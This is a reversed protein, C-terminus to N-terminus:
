FTDAQAGGRGVDVLQRECVLGHLRHTLRLRLPLDERQQRGLELLPRPLTADILIGVVAAPAAPRPAHARPSASAVSMLGSSVMEGSRQCTSRLTGYGVIVRRM